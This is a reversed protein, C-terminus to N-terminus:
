VKIVQDIIGGVIARSEDVGNFNEKEQVYMHVRTHTCAKRHAKM